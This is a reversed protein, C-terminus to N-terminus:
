QQLVQAARPIDHQYGLYNYALALTIKNDLPFLAAARKLLEAAPVANAWPAKRDQAVPVPADLGVLWYAHNFQPDLETILNGLELLGRGDVATKAATAKNLTRLWFYDAVLQLHGRGLARLLSARPLLLLSDGTASQVPERATLAVLAFFVVWAVLTRAMAQASFELGAM